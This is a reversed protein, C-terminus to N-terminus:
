PEINESNDTLSLNELKLVLKKNLVSCLKLVDNFHLRLLRKEVGKEISCLKIKSFGTIESLDEIEWELQQRAQKIQNGFNQFFEKESSKTLNDM